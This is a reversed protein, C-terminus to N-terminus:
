ISALGNLTRPISQARHEFKASLAKINLWPNLRKCHMGHSHEFLQCSGSSLRQGFINYWITPLASRSNLPGHLNVDVLQGNINDPMSEDTVIDARLCKHLHKDTWPHGSKHVSARLAEGSSYNSLKEVPNIQRLWKCNQQCFTASDM